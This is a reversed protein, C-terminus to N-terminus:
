YLIKIRDGTMHTGKIAPIYPGHDLFNNDAIANCAHIGIGSVFVQLCCTHFSIEIQQLTNLMGLVLCGFIMAVLYLLENHGEELLSSVRNDVTNLLVQKFNSVSFWDYTGFMM